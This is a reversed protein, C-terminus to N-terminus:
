LASIFGLIGTATTNNNNNNNYKSFIEGDNSNDRNNATEKVVLESSLDQVANQGPDSATNESNNENFEEYPSKSHSADSADSAGVLLTM